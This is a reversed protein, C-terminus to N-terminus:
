VKVTTAVFAAPVPVAELAETATAVMVTGPAGIIPMAVAPFVETLTVNVAGAELPLLAMM